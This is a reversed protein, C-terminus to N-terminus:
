RLHESLGIVDKVISFKGLRSMKIVERQSIVLMTTLLQGFSLTKLTLLLKRVLKLKLLKFGSEKVM